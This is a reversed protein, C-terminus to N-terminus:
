LSQSRRIIQQRNYDLLEIAFNAEVPAILEDPIREFIGEIEEITIRDLQQKWANAADPALNAGIEFARITSIEEEEWWCSETLKPLKFNKSQLEQPSLKSGLCDGHDFSPCLYYGDADIAIEINEDHRDTASLWCDFMLYGVLLDAGSNVGEIPQWDSPLRVRHTDLQQMVNRVNYSDLYDPSYANDYSPDVEELFSRLSIVRNRHLNYDVSISGALFENTKLKLTALETRAMPLCISKGLECAVKERWDMRVQQPSFEFPSAAKFLCRGLTSDKMWYKIFRGDDEDEVVANNQSEFRLVPFKHKAM